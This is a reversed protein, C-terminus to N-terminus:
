PDETLKIAELNEWNGLVLACCFDCQQMIGFVMRVGINLYQMYVQMIQMVPIHM